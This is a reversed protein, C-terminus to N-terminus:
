WSSGSWPPPRASRSTSAAPSSSSTMGMAIIWLIASDALMNKLNQDTSFASQTVTFFIFMAVVLILIPRFNATARWGKGLLATSTRM